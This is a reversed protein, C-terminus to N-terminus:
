PEEWALQFRILCCEEDKPNLLQLDALLENIKSQSKFSDFM